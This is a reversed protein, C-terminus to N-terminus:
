TSDMMIVKGPNMINDPDFSVKIRQMLKLAVPDKYIQMDTIKQSGIGHEASFSGGLEHTIDHIARHLPARYTKLFEGDDMGDPKALNFHINGDGVHGYPYPRIGRCINDAAKSGKNILIAIASIPVSVDFKLVAGANKQVASITERIRWFLQKMAENQSITADIILGEDMLSSLFDLHNDAIHSSSDTDAIKYWAYWPHTVAIPCRVESHKEMFNIAINPMLEFLSLKEGFRNKVLRLCAVADDISDIAIFAQQDHTEPPFLKLTAATIIGLTGESGIFLNKIDYGTNDKRLGSLLNMIEGNATVVEIGLTLDRANGYRVVNIGGANTALNGGIQCSGQAGLSLPFFLNARKAAQQIDQLICGADVCITMNDSDLHRLRNLRKLSLIIAYEDQTQAGLCRGTNGGQAVIPLKHQRCLRVLEAVQQTSAPFVIAFAKGLQRGRSESLYPMLDSVPQHSAVLLVHKDGVIASLATTISDPQAKTPMPLHQTKGNM